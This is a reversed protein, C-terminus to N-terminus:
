SPQNSVLRQQVMREVAEMSGLSRRMLVAWEIFSRRVCAYLDQGFNIDGETFIVFSPRFSQNPRRFM